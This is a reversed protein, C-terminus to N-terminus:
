AYVLSCMDSCKNASGASSLRRKTNLAHMIEVVTVIFERLIVADVFKVNAQVMAVIRNMNLASKRFDLPMFRM